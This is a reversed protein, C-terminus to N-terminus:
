RFVKIHTPDPDTLHNLAFGSVPNLFVSIHGKGKAFGIGETNVVAAASGRSANHGEPASLV